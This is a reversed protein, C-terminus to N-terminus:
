LPKLMQYQTFLQGNFPLTVTGLCTYGRNLYFQLANLASELRAEAHGSGRLMDELGRLLATGIGKGQAGPDVYLRGIQGSLPHLDAFALLNFRRDVAVLCRTNQFSDNWNAHDSAADHWATIQERSYWAACSYLVARQYIGALLPIEPSQVPRIEYSGM